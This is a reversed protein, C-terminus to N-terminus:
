KRLIHSSERVLRIRINPVAKHNSPPLLGSPQRVARLHLRSRRPHHVRQTSHVAGVADHLAANLHTLARHPPPLPGRITHPLSLAPTRPRVHIAVKVGAKEAADLIAPMCHDSGVGQGDMQAVCVDVCVTSLSHSIPQQELTSGIDTHPHPAARGVSHNKHKQGWWSVVAVDVGMDAMEAMQVDLVASDHSSYLGRAPFYTVGPDGPAVYPEKRHQKTVEETWHPLVSHTWHLYGADHPPAGYWAYHFAHLSPTPFLSQISPRSRHPAARTGASVLVPALLIVLLLLGFLPSKPTSLRMVVTRTCRVVAAEGGGESGGCQGPPPPVLSPRRNCAAAACIQVSPYGRPWGTSTERTSQSPTFPAVRHHSPTQEHRIAAM